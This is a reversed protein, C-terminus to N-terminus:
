TRSSGSPAPTATARNSRAAACARWFTSGDRRRFQQESKEFLGGGALVAFAERILTEYDETSVCVEAPAISGVEDQAFGFMEGARPNFSRIRDPQTVAIGVPANEFVARQERVMRRLASLDALRALDADYGGADAVDALQLNSFGDM